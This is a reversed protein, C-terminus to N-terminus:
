VELWDINFCYLTESQSPDSIERVSDIWVPLMKRIKQADSKSLAFVGSYALEKSQELISHKQMAFSRWNSHHKTILPHDASLHMHSPGYSYKSSESEICLKTRTLFKLIKRIKRDSLAFKKSLTEITQLQPIATCLRIAIYLWSSYFEAADEISIEKQNPLRSSLKLHQLKLEKLESNLEDKLRSTAARSIQVLTLFYKRELDGFGFHDAIQIAQDLTLDRRGNLIQSLYSPFVRASEAIKKLEGSRKTGSRSPDASSKIFTRYDSFEFLNNM